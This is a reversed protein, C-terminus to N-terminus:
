EANDTEEPPQEQEPEEFLEPVLLPLDQRLHNLWQEYYLELDERSCEAPVFKINLQLDTKKKSM